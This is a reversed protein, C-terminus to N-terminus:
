GNHKRCSFEKKTWMARGDAWAETYHHEGGMCWRLLEWPGHLSSLDPGGYLSTM